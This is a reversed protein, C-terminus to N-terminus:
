AQQRRRARFAALLGTGLLVMTAPEPVATNKVDTSIVAYPTGDPTLPDTTMSIGFWEWPFEAPWDIAELLELAKMDGGMGVLLGGQANVTWSSFTGEMLAIPECDGASNIGIGLEAVCGTITIFNNGDTGTNFDLSAFGSGGSGSASGSVVYSGNGQPARVITMDELPIATGILNTGDWTITGGEGAGGTNWDIVPVAQAPSAWLVTAIAAAGLVKLCKLM